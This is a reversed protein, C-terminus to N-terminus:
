VNKTAMFYLLIVCVCSFCSLLIYFRESSSIINLIRVILLLFYGLIESQGFTANLIRFKRGPQQKSFHMASKQQQTDNNLGNLFTWITPHHSAFLSQKAKIEIVPLLSMVM